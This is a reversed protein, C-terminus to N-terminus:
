WCSRALAASSRRAAAPAWACLAACCLLAAGCWAGSRTVWATPQPSRWRPLLPRLAAARRPASLRSFCTLSAPSLPAPFTPLCGSREPPPARRNPAAGHQQCESGGFRESPMALGEEAADWRLICISGAVGGGGGAPAAAGQMGAQRKGGSVQMDAEVTDSSKSARGLACMYPYRNAPADTGGSILSRREVAHPAAAPNNPPLRAAAAAAQLALLTAAIVSLKRPM